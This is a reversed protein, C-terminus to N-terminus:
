PANLRLTIVDVVLRLADAMAAHQLALPRDERILEVAATAADLWRRETPPSSDRELSRLVLSLSEKLQVAYDLASATALQEAQERLKRATHGARTAPEPLKEIAQGMAAIVQAGTRRANEPEQAAFHSVL